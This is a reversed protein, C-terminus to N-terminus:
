ADAKPSADPPAARPSVPRLPRPSIEEVKRVAEELGRGFLKDYTSYPEMTDRDKVEVAVTLATPSLATDAEDAVHDIIKSNLFDNRKIQLEVDFPVDDILVRLMLMFGFYFSCIVMFVVDEQHRSPEAGWKAPWYNKLVDTRYVIALFSSAIGLYNMLEFISQFTGIDEFGFPQIRRYTCLYKYADMRLGVLNNICTMLPALPFAASFLTVYGYQTAEMTTAKINDLQEDCEVLLYEVGPTSMENVRAVGNEDRELGGETKMKVILQIYPVIFNTINQAFIQTALLIGLDQQLKRFAGMRCPGKNEKGENGFAWCYFFITFFLSFYSNVFNFVSLRSILKDAYVTDTMWNEADTLKVAVKEYALKFVIIGVSNVLAGATANQKKYYVCGVLFAVSLGLCILTVLKAFAVRCTRRHPPFFAGPRGTVADDMDPIGKFQPRRAQQAEFGVMGWKLALEREQRRWSEMSLVSWLGVVCAYIFVSGDGTISGTNAWWLMVVIGFLSMMLYGTTIHAKFAMLLGQKEGFYEKYAELPMGELYCDCCFPLMGQLDIRSPLTFISARVWHEYLAKRERQNHMALAALIKKQQVRKEVAVGAGGLSPEDNICSWMLKLRRMSNFLTREQSNDGRFGTHEHTRRYLPALEESTDYKGNIHQYARFRSFTKEGDEPPTREPIKMPEIQYQPLGAECVLRLRDEDLPTPFNINDAQICLREHTAGVRVYIEDKQISLYASTVLGAATVKGIFDTHDFQHKKKKKLRKKVAAKMDGLAQQFDSKPEEADDKKEKKVPFVFTMDWYIRTPDEPDKQQEQALPPYSARKPSPPISKIKQAHKALKWFDPKTGRVSSVPEVPPPPPEDAKKGFTVLAAAKRWRWWGPQENQAAELADAAAELQTDEETAEEFANEGTQEDAM